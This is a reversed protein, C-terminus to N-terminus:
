HRQGMLALAAIAGDAPRLVAGPAHGAGAVGDGARIREEPDALVNLRNTADLHVDLLDDRGLPEM